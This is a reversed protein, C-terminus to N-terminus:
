APHATNWRSKRPVLGCPKVARITAIVNKAPMRSRGGDLDAVEDRELIAARHM